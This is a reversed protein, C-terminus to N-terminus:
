NVMDELMGFWWCRFFTLSRLFNNHITDGKKKKKVFLPFAALMESFESLFFFFFNLHLTFLSSLLRCLSLFLTQYPLRVYVLTM